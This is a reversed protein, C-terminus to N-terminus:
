QVDVGITNCQPGDNLFFALSNIVVFSCTTKTTHSGFIGTSVARTMKDIFGYIGDRLEPLRHLECASDSDADDGRSRGLLVGRTSSYVRRVRSPTWYITM